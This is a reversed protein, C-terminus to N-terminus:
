SVKIFVLGSAIAVIAYLKALTQREKLFVIGFLAGSVVAFERVAVIYGAAGKTFAYLEMLYTGISGFEMLCSFDSCSICFHFYRFGDSVKM